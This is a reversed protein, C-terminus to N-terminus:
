FRAKAELMIRSSGINNLNKAPFFKGWRIGFDIRKAYNYNATIILERGLENDPVTTPANRGTDPTEIATFIYFELGATMGTLPNVSGKFGFTRLGSFLSTYPYPARRVTDSTQTEGTHLVLLRDENFFSYPTAAFFEGRGSREFGDYKHGFPANFKEDQDPTESKDGSGQMFVFTLIMRKYRPHVFDFGGEFTLASGSMSIEQTAADGQPNATPLRTRGMQFAYEASYFAGKELRGGVQFDIYQRRIYQSVASATSLSTYRSGSNDQDMIWGLKINHIGWSYSLGALHLDHDGAQIQEKAKATFLHTRLGWFPGADLRIANFGLDDDDILMGSGWKYPQRGLTLNVPWDFMENAQIYANEIFPTFDEKPYRGIMSQTSGAVGIAQLVTGVEIGSDFRAKMYVRARQSYYNQDSATGYVPVTNLGVVYGPTAESAYTPNSMQVGRIRYESGIDLKTEARASSVLFFFSCLVGFCAAAIPRGNGLFLGLSPHRLPQKETSPM